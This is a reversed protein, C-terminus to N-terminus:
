RAELLKVSYDRKRSNKKDGPEATFFCYLPSYFDRNNEFFDAYFPTGKGITTYESRIENAVDNSVGKFTFEPAELPEEYNSLVQGSPSQEYHSNDRLPLSFAEEPDPMQYYEGAGLGGLYVPDPGEITTVIQKLALKDFYTMDTDSNLNHVVSEKFLVSDPEFEFSPTKGSFYNDADMSSLITPKVGDWDFVQLYEYESDAQDNTGDYGIHLTPFTSSKIDPTGSWANNTNISGSEQPITIFMSDNIGGSSLNLSGIIRIRQNIDILSSGDDFQQSLMNYKAGGDIWNLVLKDAATVYKVELLHTADILFTFIYKDLAIDYAFKPEIIMDFTFKDPMTFTEDIVDAAHVGEVFPFMTIEAEDILQVETWYTYEADTPNNSGYCRVEVDDTLNALADCEFNLKLTESDIWEYDLLTGEVLTGPISGFNDFDITYSFINATGTNNRIRFIAVNGATSGKRAIVQGTLILNSFAATLVQKVYGVNAGSNSVKTFLNSNISLTSIADSSNVNAWNATTLDTPDQILNTYAQGIFQGAGYLYSYISTANTHGHAICNVDAVTNMLSTIQSIEGTSQFRKQLFRDQLNTVPYNSDGNSASLVADLIENTFLYRM